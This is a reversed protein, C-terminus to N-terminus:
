MRFFVFISFHSWDGEMRPQSSFQAGAGDGDGNILCFDHDRLKDFAKELQTHRLFFRNSYRSTNPHSERTENLDQEFVEQCLSAKGCVFIRQIRRFPHEVQVNRGATTAFNARVHLSIHGSAPKWSKSRRVAAAHSQLLRRLDGLQYYEAEQILPDYGQFDDKLTLTRTRLFNLIHVFMEGDRDIFYRGNADKSIPSRGTFMMELLNNPTRTLTKVTTEFFKGGVNLEVHEPFLAAMASRMTELHQPITRREDDSSYLDDHNM